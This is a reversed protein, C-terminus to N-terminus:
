AAEPAAPLEGHALHCAALHGDPLPKLVPAREACLKQAWPCRTRFACGSPVDVPNPPDGALILQERRKKTRAVPIASVLARTYPHRPDAFLRDPEGQEVIRGLYMVAVEHSVQRVVKLDHSIFLYAVGFRSQLEHLLNVVQAQISVDLASVPEDCVILEPELILARALVVRQRQGGSLEHPYRDLHDPRLGVAETLALLRRRREDATGIRHIVLPEVIQRGVRLRQDLAGLPDQYVMQMQRRQARWRADQRAEIPEGKFIIRGDTLPVLGLVARATTSKGCGSEGVLGLTRGSPIRFSVGDVAKLTARQSFLGGGRRVRYHRVLNEAVVLATM